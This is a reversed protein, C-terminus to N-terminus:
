NQIVVYTVVNAVNSADGSSVTGGWSDDEDNSSSGTANGSMAHQTITNNVTVNTTNMVQSDSESWEEDDSSGWSNEDGNDVSVANTVDAQNWAKGRESQGGQGGEDDSWREDAGSNGSESSGSMAHQELHNDVKVYNHNTVESSGRDSDEDWRNENEDENERWSSQRDGHDCNDRDDDSGRGYSQNDENDDEHWSAQQMQHQGYDHSDHSWEDSGYSGEDHGYSQNDDSRNWDHDYSNNMGSRWSNNEDENDYSKDHSAYSAQNNHHKSDGHKKYDYGTKHSKQKDQHKSYDNWDYSSKYNRAGSGGMDNQGNSSCAAAFGTLSFCAATVTFAAMSGKQVARQAFTQAM